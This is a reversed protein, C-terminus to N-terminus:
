PKGGAHPGRELLNLFKSDTSLIVTTKDKLSKQYAELTRLFQYFEPDKGYAKGYIGAAKAEGEGRIIEAERYAEALLEQKEREAQARIKQAEERGESRYRNAIRSREARMREFVSAENQVPLNIRTLRVDALRIGYDRRLLDGAAALVKELIEDTKVEESRTSFLNGFPYTGLMSGLESTVVDRIRQEARAPEGITELFLKPVEINWCAYGEVVLAKKDGTLYEGAPLSLLLLRKEFRRVRDIPGPWKLYIGPDTMVRVPRGFEVLVAQEGETVVFVSGAMLLVCLFVVVFKYREPTM